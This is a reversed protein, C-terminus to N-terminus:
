FVILLRPGAYQVHHYTGIVTVLRGPHSVPGQSSVFCWLFMNDSTPLPFSRCCRVPWCFFRTPPPTPIIRGRVAAHAVTLSLFFQGISYQTRAETVTMPPGRARWAAGEHYESSRHIRRVPQFFCVTCYLVDFNRNGDPDAVVVAIELVITGKKLFRACLSLVLQPQIPSPLEHRDKKRM